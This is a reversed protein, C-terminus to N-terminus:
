AHDESAARVLNQLVTRTHIDVRRGPSAPYGVFVNLVRGLVGHRNFVLVVVGPEVEPWSALGYTAIPQPAAPTARPADEYNADKPPSSPDPM